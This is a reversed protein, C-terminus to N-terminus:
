KLVRICIVLIRVVACVHMGKMGFRESLTYNRCLSLTNWYRLAKDGVARTGVAVGCLGGVHVVILNELFNEGGREDLSNLVSGQVTQEKTERLGCNFASSM